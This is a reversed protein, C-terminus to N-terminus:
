FEPNTVMDVKLDALRRIADRRAPGLSWWRELPPDVATGTLVVKVDEGL